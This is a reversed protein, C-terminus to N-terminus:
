DQSIDSPFNNIFQAAQRTLSTRTFPFQKTCNAKRQPKTGLTMGIDKKKLHPLFEHLEDALMERPLELHRPFILQKSSEITVDHRSVSGRQMAITPMTEHTMITAHMVGDPNPDTVLSETALNSLPQTPAITPKM